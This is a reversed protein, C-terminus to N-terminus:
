LAKCSYFIFIIMFVSIVIGATTIATKLTSDMWDDKSLVEQSQLQLQLLCVNLHEMGQGRLEAEGRGPAGQVGERPAAEGWGSVGEGWEPTREVRIVFTLGEVGKIHCDLEYIPLFQTEICVSTVTADEHFVDFIAALNYLTCNVEAETENEGEEACSCSIESNNYSCYPTVQCRPSTCTKTALKKEPDKNAAKVSPHLDKQKAHYKKEPSEMEGVDNVTVHSGKKEPSEVRGVDNVTVHSGKEEPSEARGVDNVTVHSGKEEPSEARGVDNITVHSGKERDGKSQLLLLKPHVMTGNKGRVHRLRQVPLQASLSRRQTLRAGFVGDQSAAVLAIVVVSSWRVM